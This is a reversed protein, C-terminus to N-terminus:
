AQRHERVGAYVLWGLGYVLLSSLLVTLIGMLRRPQTPKDSLTPNVIRDLYLNQRRADERASILSAIAQALRKDAIEQEVLLRQYQGASSALSSANGVVKAREQDLQRQTAAIRRDLSPLQPSQPAEAAIQEREVRLQALAVQLESTIASSERVMVEPDVYGASNRFATIRQEVEAVAARAEAESAEAEKIADTMSRENLRNVLNESSTLLADALKHADEATYAKVRLTSIGTGTEYGVLVFRKYAKYLGENTLDEGLRPYRTLFDGKSNGVINRVNVLAQADKLGDRSSVYEHVAFTDSLGSGVGVGQLAIGLGTPQTKGPSRVMFQAESVYMPAAILLYYAAAVATPLCVVLGFGLPLRKWLPKVASKSQSDDSLPAVYKLQAETM